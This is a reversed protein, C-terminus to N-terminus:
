DARSYVKGKVIYYVDEAINQIHDGIRECCRAAFILSTYAQYKDSDNQLFAQIQALLHSYISDIQEDCYWIEVAKHVDTQSYAEMIDRLMKLSITAMEIISEIPKDININNIESVCRAIRKANDAIRELDTAIKLASIISRLDEALPQRKALIFVTLNDIERQLENVRQDKQIVAEALELNRHTLAEVASTLQTEASRGMEMLKEKLTALEQDFSKVIHQKVM